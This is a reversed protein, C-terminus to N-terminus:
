LMPLTLAPLTLPAAAPFLGTLVGAGATVGIMGLTQNFITIEDGLLPACGIKLYTPLGAKITAILDRKRQFLVILNYPVPAKIAQVQPLSQLFKIQAPYCAHSIPDRLSTPDAPNTLTSADADAENIAAITGAVVTAEISTIDDMLKQLPDVAPAAKVTKAEAGMPLFLSLAFAVLLIKVVTAPSVSKTDTLPGASPSSFAAQGTMITTGIFALLNCLATIHPAWTAPVINTLSVTGQGIAQEIIILCGLYACYKPNIGPLSNM